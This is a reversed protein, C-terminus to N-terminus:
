LKQVSSPGHNGLAVLDHQFIEQSTEVMSNLTTSSEILKNGHESGFMGVYQSGQGPCLIATSTTTSCFQHRSNVAVNRSAILMLYQYQHFIRM